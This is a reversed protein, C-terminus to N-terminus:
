CFVVSLLLFRGRFFRLASTGVHITVFVSLPVIQSFIVLLFCKSVLSHSVSSSFM